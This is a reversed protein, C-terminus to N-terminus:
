GGRSIAHLTLLAQDVEERQGVLLARNDDSLDTRSLLQDIVALVRQDAEILSAIGDGGRPQSRPPLTRDQAHQRQWARVVALARRRRLVIARLLMGEAGDRRDGEAELLALSADIAQSLSSVRHKLSM